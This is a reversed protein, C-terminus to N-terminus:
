TIPTYHQLKHQMHAGRVCKHLLREAKGTQLTTSSKHM